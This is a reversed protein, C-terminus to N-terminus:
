LSCFPMQTIVSPGLYPLLTTLVSLDIALRGARKGGLASNGPLSSHTVAYRTHAKHELGSRDGCDIELKFGLPQWPRM